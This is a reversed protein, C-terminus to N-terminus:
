ARALRWRLGGSAVPEVLGREHLCALAGRTTTEVLMLMGPEGRAGLRSAIAAALESSSAQGEGLTELISDMLGKIARRNAEVLGRAEGAQLAPGHAPQLRGAGALLGELADLSELARCPDLHYPVGYRELVREGFVADAAYLTGDPAIVGVQGPTHGPLAVLELPGLRAPADLEVDVKVSPARFPLLPDGPELPYGFTVLVRLGADRLAPADARPAAVVAEVGSAELRELLGEGLTSHHDSHYHTILFTVREYGALIRALEKARKRGHGPDVVYAEGGCAVILTSPSGRVVEVGCEGSM